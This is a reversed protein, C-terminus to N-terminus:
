FTLRLGLTPAQLHHLTLPPLAYTDRLHNLSTRQQQRNAERAGEVASKINGLYWGTEFYLLIAGTVELGEHFAYVASTLFLGNLLFATLAQIPKGLYLHGAGPLIGALLGATRPSAPMAAPAAHLAGQLALGPETLAHDSPFAQLTQRARDAHGDLAWALGLLYTSRPVLPGEPYLQLFAQFHDIAQPYRQQFFHLEGLKFAAVRDVGPSADIQRLNQFQILADDHLGDEQLALGILIRAATSRRHQPFLLTFRKLETTARYYEGLQFLHLGFAYLHTGPPDDQAATAVQHWVLM